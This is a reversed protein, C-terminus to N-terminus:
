QTEESQSRAFSVMVEWLVRIVVFPFAIVLLGIVAATGTVLIVIDVMLEAIGKKGKSYPRVDTIRLPSGALIRTLRHVNLIRRAQVTAKFSTM